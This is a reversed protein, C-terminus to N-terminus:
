ILNFNKIYRLITKKIEKCLLKDLDLGKRNLEICAKSKLEFLDKSSFVYHGAIIAKNEYDINSGKIIWKEWKMSDYSIQIFDNALKTLNNEELIKLFTKSETVGFEPAVNAAPIGLKPHWQLSENSLYDANHEKM